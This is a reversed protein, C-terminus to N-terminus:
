SMMSSALASARLKMVAVAQDVGIKNEADKVFGQVVKKVKKGKLEKLEEVARELKGNKVWVGARVLRDEDEVETGKKTMAKDEGVEVMVMGLVSGILIGGLGDSGKGEGTLVMKRGEGKVSGWREQLESLTLIGSGGNKACKEVKELAAGIVTDDKCIIKCAELDDIKGEELSGMLGMVGGVVRHVKSSRSSSAEGKKVRGQLEKIKEEMGRGKDVLGKLKETYEEKIRRTEEGMKVEMEEQMAKVWKEQREAWASEFMKKTHELEDNRKAINKREIRDEQERLERSM